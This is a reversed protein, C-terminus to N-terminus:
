GVWTGLKALLGNLVAGTATGIVKPAYKAFTNKIAQLYGTVVSPNPNSKKLQAQAAEADAEVDNKDDATLGLQGVAALIEAIMQGLDAKQEQSIQVSLSQTAGASGQQLASNVMTGINVSHTPEQKMQSKVEYFAKVQFVSGHVIMSDVDIVRFETGSLQGRLVDGPRIDTGPHFGIYKRGGKETNRLGTTTFATQEARRVEFDEGGMQMFADLPM